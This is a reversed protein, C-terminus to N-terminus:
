KVKSRTMPGMATNHTSQAIVIKDSSKNAHVVQIRKSTMSMTTILKRVFYIFPLSTGDAHWFNTRVFKVFPGAIYAFCYCFLLLLLLLEFLINILIFINYPVIEFFLIREM